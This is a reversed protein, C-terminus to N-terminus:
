FGALAFAAARFSLNANETILAIGALGSGYKRRM